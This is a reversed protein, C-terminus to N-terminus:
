QNDTQYRRENLCNLHPPKTKKTGNVEKAGQIQLQCHVPTAKLYAQELRIKNVTDM